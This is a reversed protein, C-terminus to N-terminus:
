TEGEEETDDEAEDTDGFAPRVRSALLRFPVFLVIFTAVAALAANGLLTAPDVVTPSPVSLLKASPDHKWAVLSGPMGGKVAVVVEPTLAIAGILGPSEEGQWVLLGSDLDIAVLRGDNLGLLVAGGSVDPSSRPDLENLQYDWLRAGTAPDLRYLGGPYDAILLAGSPVAPSSVPSFASLVLGQWQETGDDASLARVLRESTGVVVTGGSAAPASMGSGSAKPQYTWMESGSGADLAHLQVLSQDPDDVVAYVKGDSVAPTGLVESGSHKVTWLLAGTALDVAYINGEDDGLYANEGNVAVGARVTALLPTRPDLEKMTGLDVRVLSTSQQQGTGVTDVFTLIQRDGALGVAPMSIPGGNRILQWAQAGTTLDVGYVAHEGVTIAVEDAIVPGSLAGEPAEFTWAPAYPPSPGDGLSGPHGPGGQFQSWGQAATQALAPWAALCAFCVILCVSAVAVLV